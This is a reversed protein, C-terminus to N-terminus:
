VEIFARDHSRRHYYFRIFIAASIAGLANFVLDLATNTYGGVGTNPVVLVAVFEVIENLAGFGMGAAIILPYVVLWNTKENLYPRLLHYVVLTAVAFGFFHVAQDYKLIYLEGSGIIPVLHLKYLVAGNVEIGGGALHLLGWLSLGFLTLYDFRSRRITTFILAFFGALVLLYWIFEANAIRVYYAAFATIYILSFVAIAKEGGTLRPLSM